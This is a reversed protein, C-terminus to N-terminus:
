LTLEDRERRKKAVEEEGERNIGIRPASEGPAEGMSWGAQEEGLVAQQLQAGHEDHQGAMPSDLKMAGWGTESRTEM